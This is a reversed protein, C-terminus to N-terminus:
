AKAAVKEVEKNGTLNSSLEVGLYTATDVTSLTQGKITYDRLILKRKRTVHMIHCKSPNFSMGLTNGM